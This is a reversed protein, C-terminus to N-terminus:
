CVSQFKMNKRVYKWINFDCDNLVLIQMLFLWVRRYRLYVAFNASSGFAYMREGLAPTQQLLLLVGM